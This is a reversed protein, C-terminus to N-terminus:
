EEGLKKAWVMVGRLMHVRLGDWTSGTWWGMVIRDKSDKIRVLEYPEPKKEKVDIWKTM